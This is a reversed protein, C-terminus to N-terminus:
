TFYDTIIEVNGWIDHVESMGGKKSKDVHM